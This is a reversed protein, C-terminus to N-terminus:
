RRGERYRLLRLSRLSLRRFARPRTRSFGRLPRHVPLFQRRAAPREASRRHHQRHGAGIELVRLLRDRPATKVFAEVAAAAISQVYRSPLSRQYLNEALDFSGEPFLTELPSVAGTVIGTLLRCCNRVYALLPPDGSLVGEAENWLADFDPAPGGDAVRELWRRWLHRYTQPISCRSAGIESVTNRIHASAIRNLMEWTRQLRGLDLDVPMQRSQTDAAASAKSWIEEAGPAPTALWYRQREFPYTPFDVRCRRYPADFSQWDIECGRTYLIQLSELLERCDSSDRRMSALMPPGDQGAIQSAMGTLVPHPGCELFVDVGETLMAKVGDAFRVPQRMHRRWYGPERLEPGAAAGTVNSILRVRPPSPASRSVAAEFEDLIPEM